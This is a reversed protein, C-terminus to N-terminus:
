SFLIYAGLIALFAYITNKLICIVMGHKIYGKQGALMIADIDPNKGTIPNSEIAQEKLTEYDSYTLLVSLSLIIYVATDFM